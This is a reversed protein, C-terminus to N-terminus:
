KGCRGYHNRRAKELRRPMGRVLKELPSFRQGQAPQEFSTLIQSVRRRFLTTTLVRGADMDELERQTGRPMQPAM